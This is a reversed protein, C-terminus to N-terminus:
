YTFDLALETISVEYLCGVLPLGSPGLITINRSPGGFASDVFSTVTQTLSRNGHIAKLMFVTLTVLTLMYLIYPQKIGTDMAIDGDVYYAITTSISPAYM